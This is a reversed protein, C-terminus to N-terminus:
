AELRFHKRHAMVAALYQSTSAGTADVGFGFYASVAMEWTGHHLYNRKLIEAAKQFNRPPYQCYAKQEESLEGDEGIQVGFHWPMVQMAGQARGIPKGSIDFAFNMPSEVWAQGGSEQLMVAGYIDKPIGYEDAIPGAIGKLWWRVKEIASLDNPPESENAKLIKPLVDCFVVRRDQTDM